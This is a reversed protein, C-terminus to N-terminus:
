THEDWHLGGGGRSDEGRLRVKYPNPLNLRSFVRLFIHAVVPVGLFYGIWAILFMAGYFYVEATTGLIFPATMFSALVSMAVMIVNIDQKGTMMEKASKKKSCCSILVGAFACAVLCIVFVVYDAWHFTIVPQHTM